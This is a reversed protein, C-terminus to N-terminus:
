GGAGVIPVGKEQLLANLAALDGAVVEDVKQIHESVQGRLLELVELDQDTPPFDAATVGGTLYGLKQLLKAEFRVADQGQGTLRLDVMDMQLDQLEEELSRAAATVEEDEVFRIL